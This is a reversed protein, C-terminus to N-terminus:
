EESEEKIKEPIKWGNSKTSFDKNDKENSSIKDIIKKETLGLLDEYQDMSMVVFSNDPDSNDFVVIRDGTRKSLGIVQKLQKSM